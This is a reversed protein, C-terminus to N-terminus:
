QTPAGAGGAPACANERIRKAYVDCSEPGAGMLARCLPLEGCLKVDKHAYAKRFAVASLCRQRRHDPLARCEKETANGLLHKEDRIAEAVQATSLKVASLPVLLPTRKDPQGVYRLIIDCAAQNDTFQMFEDDPNERLFEVCRAKTAPLAAEADSRTRSMDRYVDLCIRSPSWFKAPCEPCKESEDGGGILSKLHDCPGRHGSVLAQCAYYFVVDNENPSSGTKGHSGSVVEDVSLKGSPACAEPSSSAAAASSAAFAAAMLLSPIRLPKM